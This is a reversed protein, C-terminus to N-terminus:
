LAKVEDANDYGHADARPVIVEKAEDIEAQASALDSVEIAGDSLKTLLEDRSKKAVRQQKTWHSTGEKCMTNLGTSTGRKSGYECEQVLEWKKHYYCFIAIVNGEDDKLFTKGIDSGGSNKSTMLEMLQPLITSVKKNSNENLLEAIEKFAKKVQTM